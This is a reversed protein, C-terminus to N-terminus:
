KGFRHFINIVIFKTKLKENLHLNNKSKMHIIDLLQESSKSLKHKLRVFPLKNKLNEM